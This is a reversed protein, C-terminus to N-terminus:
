RTDAINHSNHWVDGYVKNQKIRVFVVVLDSSGSTWLFPEKDFIVYVSFLTRMNSGIFAQRLLIM